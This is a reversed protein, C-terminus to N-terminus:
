EEPTFCGFLEPVEIQEGKGDPALLRIGVVKHM